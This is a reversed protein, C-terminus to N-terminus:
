EDQLQDPSVFADTSNDQQSDGGTQPVGRSFDAGPHSMPEGVVTNATQEPQVNPAPRNSQSSGPSAVSDVQEGRDENMELSGADLNVDQGAGIEINRVGDMTLTEEVGVKMNNGARLEIDSRTADLQMNTRVAISMDNGAEMVGANQKVRGANININGGAKITPPKSSSSRMERASDSNDEKKTGTKPTAELHLESQSKKM